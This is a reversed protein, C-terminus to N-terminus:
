ELLDVAAFQDAAQDLTKAIKDRPKGTLRALSEALEGAYLNLKNRRQERSKAHSRRSLYSGLDRGCEQLGRQIEELIESYHAIAEKSESTFPVWVSAIHVVLVMPGTPLSGRPQNLGYRRWNVDNVAKTIACASQQYQLPVRNALRVLQISRSQAQSRVSADLASRVLGVQDQTLERVRTSRNVGAQLLLEVVKKRTLGPLVTLAMEITKNHALRVGSIWVGRDSETGHDVLGTLQGGYALGVEIQFPNGRYVTPPRTKTVYIEAGKIERELGKRVLDEGIPVICNTPPSLIKVKPIAQYLSEVERNAIQKPRATPKLGAEACIADAVRASVRSFDQMLAARLTRASTDKLLKILLGLEVGYPHPKIEVPEPPLEDSVRPFFREKKGKPPNYFIEAHPNAIATQELYQDVSRRGAKYIGELEIEVRTGHPEAWEVEIDKIVEPNNKRTNIVIEFHHAPRNEATRSTIVV